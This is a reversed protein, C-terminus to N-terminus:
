PGLSLAGFADLALVLERESTAIRIRAPSLLPEAGFAIDPAEVRVVAFPWTRARLPDDGSDGRQTEGELFRYGQADARWTITRGTVRAEDQALRFLAALRDTEEALLRQERPAASLSALGAVIGLIAIVVLLEFLTFGPTGWATGPFTRRREARICLNATSAARLVPM